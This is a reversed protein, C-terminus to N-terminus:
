RCKGYFDSLHIPIYVLGMSGIPIEIEILRPYHTPTGASGLKKTPPLQALNITGETM